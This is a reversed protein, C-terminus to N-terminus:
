FRLGSLYEECMADMTKRVRLDGLTSAEADFADLLLHALGNGLDVAQQISASGHSKVQGLGLPHQAPFGRAPKRPQLAAAIRVDLALELVPVVGIRSM